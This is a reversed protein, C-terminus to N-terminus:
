YDILNDTDKKNKIVKIGIAFAMNLSQLSTIQQFININKYNDGYWCGLYLTHFPHPYPSHYNNLIQSWSKEM